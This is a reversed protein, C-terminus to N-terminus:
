AWRKCPWVCDFMDVGLAVCVVLDVPYGVGMLYRPKSDPLGAAETGGASGAAETAAAESRLAVAAPADGELRRAARLDSVLAHVEAFTTIQAEARASAAAAAKSDPKSASKLETLLAAPATIKCTPGTSQHVVRWFQAKDEGGALGGIAYGPLRRKVM